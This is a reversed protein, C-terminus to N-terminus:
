IHSHVNEPEDIYLPRVDLPDSDRPMIVRQLVQTAPVESRGGSMGAEATDHVKSDEAANLDTSVQGATDAEQQAGTAQTAM